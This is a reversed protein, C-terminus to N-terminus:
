SFVRYASLLREYAANQYLPREVQSSRNEFLDAVMLLAASKIASPSAPTLQDVPLGLYNATTETAAAMLELILPDEDNGDVRLHLKTENLTLM